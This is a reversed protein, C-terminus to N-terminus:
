PWVTTIPAPHPSRYPTPGPHSYSIQNGTPAWYTQSQVVGDEISPRTSIGLCCVGWPQGSVSTKTRWSIGRLIHGQLSISSPKTRLLDRFRLSAMTAILFCGLTVIEAPKADRDIIRNEWAALVALPIPPKPDRLPSVLRQNSFILSLKARSIHSSRFTSNLHFGDSLKSTHLCEQEPHNWIKRRRSSTRLTFTIWFLLCLLKLPYPQTSTAGVHGTIGFKYTCSFVEQEWAKALAILTSTLLSHTMFKVSFNAQSASTMSSRKSVTRPKTPNWPNKPKQLRHPEPLITFGPLPLCANLQLKFSGWSLPIQYLERQYQQHLLHIYYLLMLVELTSLLLNPNWELSQLHYHMLKVLLFTVHDQDQLSKFLPSRSRHKALMSVTSPGTQSRSTSTPKSPVIWSGSMSELDDDINPPLPINPVNSDLFRKVVTIPFMNPNLVKFPQLHLTVFVHRFRLSSSFFFFFFVSPSM